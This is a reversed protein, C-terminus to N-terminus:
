DSKRRRAPLPSTKRHRPPAGPLPRGSTLSRAAPPLASVLRDEELCVDVSLRGEM